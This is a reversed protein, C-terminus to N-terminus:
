LIAELQLATKFSISLIYGLGTLPVIAVIVEIASTSLTKRSTKLFISNQSYGMVLPTKARPKRKSVIRQM